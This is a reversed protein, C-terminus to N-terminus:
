FVTELIASIYKIEGNWKVKHYSFLHYKVSKVYM